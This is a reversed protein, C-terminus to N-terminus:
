HTVDLDEKPETAQQMFENSCSSKRSLVPQELHDIGNEELDESNHKKTPM